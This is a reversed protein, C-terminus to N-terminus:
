RILGQHLLVQRQQPIVILLHERTEARGLALM